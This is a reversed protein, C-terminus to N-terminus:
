ATVTPPPLPAGQEYLTIQRAILSTAVDRLAPEVRGIDVWDRERRPYEVDTFSKLPVRAVLRLRADEIKVFARVTIDRPIDHAAAPSTSLAALALILGFVVAVRPAM